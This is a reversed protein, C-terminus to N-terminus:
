AHEPLVLSALLFTPLAGVLFGVWLSGLGLSVSVIMGISGATMVLAGAGHYRDLQDWHLRAQRSVQSLRVQIRDLTSAPDVIPITPASRGASSAAGAGNRRAASRLWLEELRKIEAEKAPREKALRDFFEVDIRGRSELAKVVRVAIDATSMDWDVLNAVSFGHVELFRRLDRADFSNQLFECLSEYEVGTRSM